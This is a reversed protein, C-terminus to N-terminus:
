THKSGGQLLRMMNAHWSFIMVKPEYSYRVYDNKALYKKATALLRQSAAQIYVDPMDIYLLVFKDGSKINYDKYPFYLKLSEDYVRNCTLVYKNGKKECKTIEFIGAVM